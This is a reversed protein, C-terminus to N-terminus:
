LPSVSFLLQVQGLWLCSCLLSKSVCKGSYLSLLSRFSLTLLVDQFVSLAPTSSMRRHKYNRPETLPSQMALSPPLLSPSLPCARLSLHWRPRREGRFSLIAWGELFGAAEASVCVCVCQRESSFLVCAWQHPHSAFLIKRIGGSFSVASSSPQSLVHSVHQYSFTSSNFWSAHIRLVQLQLWDSPRFSLLLSYSMM